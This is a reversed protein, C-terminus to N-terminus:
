KPFEFFYILIDDTRERWNAWQHGDNYENYLFNFGTNEMEKHFKRNATLFTHGELSGSSLDYIGVDFYFRYEKLYKKNESATKMEELLEETITSSQGAANLFVDPRNFAALLSYHGGASIGTIARFHPDTNVKYTKDIFPVLENCLIETLKENEAFFYSDDENIYELFVVIMPSIKNDAILNDLVNNYAMFEFAKFGDMVYLSPLASLTDYGFPKYIKIPRPSIEEEKSIFITSEITGRQIDRRFFRTTDRVFLPMVVESHSGYGSPTIKKNLPDIIEKGDVSFKYDIRADPPATCIKYFFNKDGCNISKMTDLKAWGEQLDGNLTVTDAKGYYFFCILSDGDIVPSELNEKLFNQVVEKRQETGLSKVKETFQYFTSKILQQNTPEASPIYTPQNDKACGYLIFFLLLLLNLSFKKKM